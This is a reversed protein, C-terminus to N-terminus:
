NILNLNKKLFKKIINQDKVRLNDSSPLVLIKKWIKNTFKLDEVLYKKMIPQLHMPMWFFNLNINSKRANQILKQSINKKCILFNLWM